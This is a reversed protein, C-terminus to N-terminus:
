ILLPTNSYRLLLTSSNSKQDKAVSLVVAVKSKSKARREAQSERGGKRGKDLNELPITDIWL